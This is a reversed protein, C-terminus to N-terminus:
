AGDIRAVILVDYALALALHALTVCVQRSARCGRPCSTRQRKSRREETAVSVMGWTHGSRGGMAYLVSFALWFRADRTCPMHVGRVALRVSGRGLLLLRADDRAGGARRLVCMLISRVPERFIPRSVTAENGARLTAPKSGANDMNLVVSTLM